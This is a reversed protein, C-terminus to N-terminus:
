RMRGAREAGTPGSPTTIAVAAPSWGSRRWVWDPWDVGRRSRRRDEVAQLIRMPLIAGLADGAVIAGRDLSSLRRTGHGGAHSTNPTFDSVLTDPDINLDLFRVLAARTSKPDDLADEYRLLLVRDCTGAFRRLRRSTLANAIAGRVIDKMRAVGTAPVRGYAALRSATLTRSGRTIGVFRAKPFRTALDEAMRTHHPSKELWHHRGRQKATESMVAEFVDAHDRASVLVQDLFADDLGSLIYYDSNLFAARFAHRAGPDSLPGFATAFHSFFISEHVGRHDGATIAAIAGSGALLNAIWTTGSRQLGLIFIGGEGAAHHDPM